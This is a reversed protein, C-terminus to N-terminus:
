VHRSKLLKSFYFTEVVLTILYFSLFVCAFAVNQEKVVKIYAVFCAMAVVFKVIKAGFIWNVAQQSSKNTAVQLAMAALLSLLMFLAPVAWYLAFAYQPVVYVFISRGVLACVAQILYTCVVFSRM